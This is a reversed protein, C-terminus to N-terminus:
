TSDNLAANFSVIPFPQRSISLNETGTANYVSHCGPSTWSRAFPRAFPRARSLSVALLMCFAQDISVQLAYRINPCQTGLPVYPTLCTGNYLLNYAFTNSFAITENPFFIVAAQTVNQNDWM